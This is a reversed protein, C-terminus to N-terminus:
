LPADVGAPQRGRILAIHGRRTQGHGRTLTKKGSRKYLAPWCSAGSICFINVCLGITEQTIILELTPSVSSFVSSMKQRHKNHPAANRHVGGGGRGRGGEGWEGDGGRGRGGKGGSVTGGTGGEGWEGDGGDGRGGM